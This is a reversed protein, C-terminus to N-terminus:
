GHRVSVCWYYTFCLVGRSTGQPGITRGGFPTFPPTELETNTLHHEELEIVPEPCEEDIISVGQSNRSLFKYVLAVAVMLWLIVHPIILVYLFLQHQIDM